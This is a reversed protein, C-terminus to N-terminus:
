KPVYLVDGIDLRSNKANNLRMLASPSIHFKRAIRSYSDGKVVTSENEVTVDTADSALISSSVPTANEEMKKAIPINISSPVIMPAPPESPPVLMKKKDSDCASFLLPAACFIIKIILTYKKMINTYNLM